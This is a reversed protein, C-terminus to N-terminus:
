TQALTPDQIDARPTGQNWWSWPFEQGIWMDGVGAVESFKWEVPEWTPDFILYGADSFLEIRNGGPEYVYMCMAQTIGHKGPGAEIFIDAERLLEALDYVHQPVGYWYCLHHLRGRTGTPDPVYAIDHVLNTVSMWDALLAGSEDDVIYERSMFGLQGKFFDSCAAPDSSMLNIHDLRRVPVGQQPKKQPRNKLPTKLDEPCLFYDTDFYLEMSHGDPDEFQYAPGHGLDGDIWGKGLGTAEVAQVRRELAQPSRARWAVHGLGADTSETIKLTHHHFDEHARLYVSQGQRETEQLALLDKFFWLTEEPKPTLLEVHGLHALDFIQEEFHGNSEAM